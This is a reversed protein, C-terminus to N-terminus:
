EEVTGDEAPAEAVVEAPAETLEEEAVDEEPLTAKISLSIKKTDYNIEIIKADVQDGVKLVDGVKEVRQNAIQSIHVLGDIGPIVSVFAGGTSGNTATYRHCSRKCSM